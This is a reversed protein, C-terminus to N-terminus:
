RSQTKNPLLVINPLPLKDSWLGLVKEVLLISFLGARLPGTLKWEMVNLAGSYDYLLCETVRFMWNGSKYASGRQIPM